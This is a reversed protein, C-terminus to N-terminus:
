GSDPERDSKIKCVLTYHLIVCYLCIICYLVCQPPWVRRHLFGRTTTFARARNDIDHKMKFIYAMLNATSNRHRRFFTTKPGGIQLPLTYWLNRVHTKLDCKCGLMHGIETSNREALASPLHRFFSSFLLFSSSDSYFRLEGLFIDSPRILM